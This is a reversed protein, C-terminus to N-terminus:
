EGVGVLGGGRPRYIDNCSIIDLNWRVLYVSLLLYRFRAMTFLGQVLDLKYHNSRHPITPKLKLTDWGGGQLTMEFRRGTNKCM